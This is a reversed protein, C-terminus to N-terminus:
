TPNRPNDSTSKCIQHLVLKAVCNWMSYIDSHIVFGLGFQALSYICWSQFDGPCQLTRDQQSSWHRDLHTWPEDRSRHNWSLPLLLILIHLWSFLSSSPASICDALKEIQSLATMQEAPRQANRSNPDM